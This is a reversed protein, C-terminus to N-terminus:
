AVRSAILSANKTWNRGDDFSNHSEWAFQNAEIDFFRIQNHIVKQDSTLAKARLLMEGDRWHGFWEGNLAPQLGGLGTIEWRKTLACYSRLTIFSSAEQGSPLFVTFDDFVIRKEHLYQARWKAGYKVLMEGSPAYRIGEVNWEGILFDFQLNEAVAGELYRMVEPPLKM